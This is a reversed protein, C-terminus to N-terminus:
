IFFLGRKTCFTCMKLFKIEIHAQNLITEKIKSTKYLNMLWWCRSCQTLFSPIATINVNDWWFLLCWLGDFIRIEYACVQSFSSEWPFGNKFFIFDDLLSWNEYKSYSCINDFLALTFCDSCLQSSFVNCSLFVFLLVGLVKCYYVKYLGDYTYVKGVYSSKSQHGRIVRVPIAQDM